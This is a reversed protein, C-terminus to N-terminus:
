AVGAGYEYVMRGGNYAVIIVLCVLIVLFFLTLAKTAKQNKKRLFSIIVWASLSSVMTILAFSRHIDLVPHSVLNLRKAEWLGTLVVLPTSLCALVFLQFATQSWRENGFIRSLIELGLASLFFAIPFHVFMPHFPMTVLGAM